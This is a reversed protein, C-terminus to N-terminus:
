GSIQVQLFLPLNYLHFSFHSTPYWLPPSHFNVNALMIVMSGTGSDRSAIATIGNLSYVLRAPILCYTLTLKTQM